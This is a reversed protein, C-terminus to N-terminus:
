VDAVITAYAVNIASLDTTVPSTVNALDTEALNIDTATQNDAANASALANLDSQGVTNAAVSDSVITQESANDTQLKAIAATLRSQAASSKPNNMLAASAAFAAKTDRMLSSNLLQVAKKLTALSTKEDKTLTSILAKDSQSAKLRNLDASLRKADAAASRPAAAADAVITSLASQLDREDLTSTGSAAFQDFTAAGLTAPANQSAVAMGILATNPLVITDQSLETFIIGDSSLSATVTTGSRKIRLFEALTGPEGPNLNVGGFGDDPRANVFVSGDYRVGLFLDAASPSLSSRIDLGALSNDASAGDTLIRITVTQNGVLPEYVFHFADSAGFLDHGAGIVTFTKTGAAYTASGGAPTGIDASHFPAPVASLLQRSELAEFPIAPTRRAARSDTVKSEKAM